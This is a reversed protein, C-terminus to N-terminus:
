EPRMCHLCWGKAYTAAGGPRVPGYDFTVFAVKM